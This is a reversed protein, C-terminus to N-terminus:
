NFILRSYNIFDSRIIGNDSFSLNCQPIEEPTVSYINHDTIHYKEDCSTIQYVNKGMLAALGLVSSITGFIARSGCIDSLLSNRDSPSIEFGMETLLNEEKKRLDTDIGPPYRVLIKVGTSDSLRKLNHFIENRLELQKKLAFENGANLIGSVMFTVRNQVPYKQSASVADEFLIEPNGVSYIEPILRDDYCEYMYVDTHFDVESQSWCCIDDVFCFRFITEEDATNHMFRSAHHELQKTKIGLHRCATILILDRINYQNVTIYLSIGSRRLEKEAKKTREYFTKRMVGLLYDAKTKDSIESSDITLNDTLFEFWASVSKKLKAGTVSYGSFYRKEKDSLQSPIFQVKGSNDTITIDTRVNTKVVTCNDINDILKRYRENKLVTASLMIKKDQSANSFINRLFALPYFIIRYLFLAPTSEETSFAMDFSGYSRYTRFRYQCLAMLPLIDSYKEYLESGLLQQLEKKISGHAPNNVEMNM